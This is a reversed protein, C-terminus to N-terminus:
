LCARGTRGSAAASAPAGPQRLGFHGHPMSSHATWFVGHALGARNSIKCGPFM